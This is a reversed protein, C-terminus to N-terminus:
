IYKEIEGYIENGTLRKNSLKMSVSEDEGFNYDSAIGNIAKSNKRYIMM